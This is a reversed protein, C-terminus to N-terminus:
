NRMVLKRRHPRFSTGVIEHTTDDVGWIIFGTPEKMLAASNAIASIYEGLDEPNSNNKKFEVCEHEREVARLTEVTRIIQDADM